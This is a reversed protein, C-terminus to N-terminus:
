FLLCLLERDTFGQAFTAIDVIMNNSSAVIIM